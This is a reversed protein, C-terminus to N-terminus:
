HKEEHKKQRHEAERKERGEKCKCRQDYQYTILPQYSGLTKETMEMENVQMKMKQAESLDTSYIPMKDGKLLFKLGNEQSDSM